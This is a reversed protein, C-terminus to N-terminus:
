RESLAVGFWLLKYRGLTFLFLDRQPRFWNPNPIYGQVWPGDGTTYYVEPPHHPLLSYWWHHHDCVQHLPLLCLTLLVPRGRPGLIEPREVYGDCVLENESVVCDSSETNFTNCVYYVWYCEKNYILKILYNLTSTSFAHQILVTCIVASFKTPKRIILKKQNMDGIHKM